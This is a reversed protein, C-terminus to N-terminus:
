SAINLKNRAIQNMEDTDALQWGSTLMRTMYQKNYLFPMLIQFLGFSILTLVFHLVGVLIEGRVIPVIWGFVLYTLSYGVYGNKMIGSQEHKLLIKKQFGMVALGLVVPGIVVMVLLVLTIWLWISVINM